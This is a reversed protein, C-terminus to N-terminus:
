AHELAEAAMNEAIAGVPELERRNPLPLPQGRSEDSMPTFSPRSRGTSGRGGYLSAVRSRLMWPEELELEPAFDCAKACKCLLREYRELLVYQGNESIISENTRPDIRPRWRKLWDLRSQCRPCWLADTQAPAVEASNRRTWEWAVTRLEAIKPFFKENAIWIKVAARLAEGTLGQLSESYERATGDPNEKMGRHSPFAVYLKLLQELVLVKTLLESM